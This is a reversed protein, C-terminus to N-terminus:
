VASLFCKALVTKTTEQWLLGSYIEEFDLTSYLTVPGLLCILGNNQSKGAGQCGLGGKGRLQMLSSGDSGGQWGKRFIVLNVWAKPKSSKM